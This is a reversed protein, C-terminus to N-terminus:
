YADKVICTKGTDALSACVLAEPSLGSKSPNRAVVSPPRSGVPTALVAGDFPSRSVFSRQEATLWDVAERGTIARVYAITEGPLAGGGALWDSVRKPGANYAAAALGLNGFRRRLEALYSAAAPIALNADFPDVLSRGAATKPMFQAIGEAGASSVVFPFFGSERSILKELFAPPLGEKRAASDIVAAWRERNLKPPALVLKERRWLGADPRAPTSGNLLASNQTEEGFAKACSVGLLIGLIAKPLRAM